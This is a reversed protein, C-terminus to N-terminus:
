SIILSSLFNFCNEKEQWLIRKEEHLNNFIHNVVEGYFNKSIKVLQSGINEGKYTIEL